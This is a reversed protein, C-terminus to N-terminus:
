RILNKCVALLTYGFTPRYNGFDTITSRIQLGSKAEHRHIAHRGCDAVLWVRLVNAAM